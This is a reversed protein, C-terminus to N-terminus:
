KRVEGRIKITLFGADNLVQYLGESLSSIVCHELKLELRYNLAEIIEHLLVEEQQSKAIMSDVEILLCNKYHFGQAGEKFQLPKVEVGYTHGLIKIKVGGGKDGRDTRYIM